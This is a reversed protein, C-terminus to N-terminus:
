ELLPVCQMTCGLPLWGVQHCTHYWPMRLVGQHPHGRRCLLFSLCLPSRFSALPVWSTPGSRQTWVAPKVQVPGTSLAPEMGDAPQPPPLSLERCPLPCAWPHSRSHAPVVKSSHGAMYPRSVPLHPLSAVDCDRILPAACPRLTSKM